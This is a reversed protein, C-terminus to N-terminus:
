RKGDSTEGVSPLVLTLDLSELAEVDVRRQIPKGAVVVTVAPERGDDEAEICEMMVTAVADERVGIAVAFAALALPVQSPWTAAHQDIFRAAYEAVADDDLDSRMCLAQRKGADDKATLQACTLHTVLLLKGEVEKFSSTASMSPEFGGFLDTLVKLVGRALTNDRLDAVTCPPKIV